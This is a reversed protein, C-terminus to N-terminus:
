NATCRFRLESKLPRVQTLLIPAGEQYTALARVETCYNGSERNTHWITWRAIHSLPSSHQLSRSNNSRDQPIWCVGLCQRRAMVMIVLVGVGRGGGSADAVVEGVLCIRELLM